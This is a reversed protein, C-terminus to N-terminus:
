GYIFDGYITSATFNIMLKGTSNEFNINISTIKKIAFEETIKDILLSKISKLSYKKQKIEFLPIGSEMDFVWEGEIKQLLDKLRQRLLYTGSCFEIDRDETIFVDNTDFDFKIDVGNDPDSVEGNSVLVANEISVDEYKYNSDGYPTNGYSM